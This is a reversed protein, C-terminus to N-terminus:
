KHWLTRTVLFYSLNMLYLVIGLCFSDFRLLNSHFTWKKVYEKFLTM